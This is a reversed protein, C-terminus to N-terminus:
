WPGYEVIKSGYVDWLGGFFFVGFRSLASARELDTPADVRFTTLQHLFDLMHLHFIGTAIVTAGAEGDQM